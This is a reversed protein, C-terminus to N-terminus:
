NGRQNPCEHGLDSSGVLNDNGVAPRGVASALDEVRQRFLKRSQSHDGAWPGDRLIAIGGDGRGLVLHDGAGVGSADRFRVPELLEEGRDILAGLPHGAEVSRPTLGHGRGRRSRHHHGGKGFDVEVVEKGATARLCEEFRGPPPNSSERHPPPHAFVGKEAFLHPGKAVPRDESGTRDDNPIRRGRQRRHLLLYEGPTPGVADAL